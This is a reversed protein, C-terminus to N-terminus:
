VRPKRAIYAILADKPSKKIELIKNHANGVMYFLQVSQVTSCHCTYGM